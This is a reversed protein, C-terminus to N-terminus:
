DASRCQRGRQARPRRDIGRARRRNPKQPRREDARSRHLHPARPLLKPAALDRQCLFIHTRSLGYHCPVRRIATSSRAPTGGFQWSGVPMESDGSWAPLTPAPISSARPRFLISAPASRVGHRPTAWSSANGPMYPLRTGSACRAASAISCPSVSQEVSPSKARNGSSLRSLGSETQACPERVPMMGLTEPYRPAKSVRERVWQPGAFAAEPM